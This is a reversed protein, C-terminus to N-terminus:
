IGTERDIIVHLRCWWFVSGLESPAKRTIREDCNIHQYCSSIKICFPMLWPGCSTHITKLVYQELYVRFFKLHVLIAIGTQTLIYNHSKSRTQFKMKIPYGDTIKDRLPFGMAATRSHFRWEWIFYWYQSHIVMALFYPNIEHFTFSLVM